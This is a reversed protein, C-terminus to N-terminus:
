RQCSPRVLIRAGRVSGLSSPYNSVERVHKIHFLAQPSMRSWFHSRVKLEIRAVHRHDVKRITDRRRTTQPETVLVYALKVATM